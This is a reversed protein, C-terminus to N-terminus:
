NKLIDGMSQARNLIRSVGHSQFQKLFFVLITKKFCSNNITVFLEKHNQHKTGINLLWRCKLRNNMDEHSLYFLSIFIKLNRVLLYILEASSYGKLDELMLFDRSEFKFCM